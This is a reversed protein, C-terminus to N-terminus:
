KRPQIMLGHRGITPLTFFKRRGRHFADSVHRPASTVQNSVLQVNICKTELLMISVDHLLGIDRSVFGPTDITRCRTLGMRRNCTTPNVYPIIPFINKIRDLAHTPRLAPLGM